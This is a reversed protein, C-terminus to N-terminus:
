VNSYQGIASGNRDIRPIRYQSTLAFDKTTYDDVPIPNISPQSDLSGKKCHKWPLEKRVLDVLQALPLGGYTDWVDDLHNSVDSFLNVDTAKNNPIIASRKIYKLKDWVDYVVPGYMWAQLDDNFLRKRFKVFYWVQSYYLLKQLKLPSVGKRIFFSAIDIAQYNM